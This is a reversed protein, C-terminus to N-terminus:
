VSVAFLALVINKDSTIDSAGRKVKWKQKQPTQIWKSFVVDLQSIITYLSDSMETWTTFEMCSGFSSKHVFVTFKYQNSLPEHM